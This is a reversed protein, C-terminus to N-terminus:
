ILNGFPPTKKDLTKIKVVMGARGVNSISFNPVGLNSFFPPNESLLEHHM